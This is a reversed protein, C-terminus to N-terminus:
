PKGSVPHPSYAPLLRFGYQFLLGLVALPTALSTYFPLMWVKQVSPAPLLFSAIALGLAAVSPWFLCAAAMSWVLRTLRSKGWLSPGDRVLFLIGPLLLLQNYTSISPVIVVTVALILAFAFVFRPSQESDHWLRWCIGAAILAVAISLLPGFKRNILNDFLAAANSYQRYAAVAHVWEKMWGPLVWEAAAFLIALTLLFALLFSKRRRWESVSWLTLWAALPVVLQPKITSFALLIGALV